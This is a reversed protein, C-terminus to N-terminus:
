ECEFEFGYSMASGANVDEQLQFVFKQETPHQQTQIQEGRFYIAWWCTNIDAVKNVDVGMQEFGFEVLEGKKLGSETSVLFDTEIRYKPKSEVDQSLSIVVIFFIIAVIALVFGFNLILKRKNPGPGQSYSDLFETVAMTSIM